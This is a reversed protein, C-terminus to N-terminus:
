PCRTLGGLARLLLAPDTMHTNHVANPGAVFVVGAAGADGTLHAYLGQVEQLTMLPDQEYTVLRLSTRHAPEFIGPTVVPRQVMQGAVTAPVLAHYGNAVVEPPMPTGPVLQYSRTMFLMMQWPLVTGFGPVDTPVFPIDLYAGLEPTMRVFSQLLGVLPNDDFSPWDTPIASALLVVHDVGFRRHLSTGDSVLQHQLVQLVLGGLSSGVLTRPALGLHGFHAM